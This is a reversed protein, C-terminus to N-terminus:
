RQEGKKTLAASFGGRQHTSMPIGGREVDNDTNLNTSLKFADGQLFRGRAKAAPYCSEDKYGGDISYEYDKSYPANWQQGKKYIAM